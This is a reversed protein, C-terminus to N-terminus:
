IIDQRFLPFGVMAPRDRLDNKRRPPEGLHARIRATRGHYSRPPPARGCHCSTRGGGGPGVFFGLLPTRPLPLVRRQPEPAHKQSNFGRRITLGGFLRTSCPPQTM